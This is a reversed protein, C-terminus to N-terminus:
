KRTVNECFEGVKCHNIQQCFGEPRKTCKGTLNKKKKEQVINKVQVNNIELVLHVQFMFNKVIEM